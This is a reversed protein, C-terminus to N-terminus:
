CMKLREQTLSNGLYTVIYMQFPRIPPNIQNDFKIHVSLLPNNRKNTQCVTKLM